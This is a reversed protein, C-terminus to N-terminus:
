KTIRIKQPGVKQMTVEAIAKEAPRNEFNLDTFIGNETLYVNLSTLGSSSNLYNNLGGYTMGIIKLSISKKPNKQVINLNTSNRKTFNALGLSPEDITVDNLNISYGMVNDNVKYNSSSNMSKIGPEVYTFSGDVKIYGIYDQRSPLTVSMESNNLLNIIRFGTSSKSVLGYAPTEINRCAKRCTESSSDKECVTVCEPKESETYKAPIFEEESTNIKNYIPIIALQPKYALLTMGRYKDANTNNKNELLLADRVQDAIEGDISIFLPGLGDMSFNETNSEWVPSRQVIWVTGGAAINGKGNYASWPNLTNLPQPEYTASISYRSNSDCSLDKWQVFSSNSYYKGIDDACLAALSAYDDGISPTYYGIQIRALNDYNFELINTFVKSLVISEIGDYVKNWGIRNASGGQLFNLIFAEKSYKALTMSADDLGITPNCEFYGISYVENITKEKTRAPKLVYDINDQQYTGEMSEEESFSSIPLNKNNQDFNATIFESVGTLDIPSRLDIAVLSNKLFDWYFNFGFDSCWNSIVERLTGTYATTYLPNIDIFNEFSFNPIKSMAKLLNSFNYKVDPVDCAQDTYEESGVLLLNNILSDPSDAVARSITGNQPEISGDCTSCNVTISFSQNEEIVRYHRNTLGVYYRDLLISNDTFTCSVTKENVSINKAHSIFYTQPFILDGFEIRYSTILNKQPLVIDSDKDYVIDITLKNANESYGQSFQASYIYGGAFQGYPYNGIKIKEISKVPM